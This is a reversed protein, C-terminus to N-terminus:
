WLHSGPIFRTAENAKNTDTGAVFLGVATERNMDREDVWPVPVETHANHAHYDDTFMLLYERDSWETRCVETHLSHKPELALESPWVLILKRLQSPSKGNRERISNWSRYLLVSVASVISVWWFFNRSTLFHDCIAQYLPHMLQDQTYTRSVGIM